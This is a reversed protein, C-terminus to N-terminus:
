VRGGIECITNFYSMSNSKFNEINNQLARWQWNGQPNGPTNMRGEHGLGFLDQLPIIAIKSPSLMAGFIIDWHANEGSTKLYIRFQNKTKEDANQYWSFSTDNDHTGTYCIANQKQNYPLYPNNKNSDFAFQLVNMSAINLSDRLKIAADSLLGLDEAILKINPLARSIDEFIKLDPGKCWTGKKATKSDAPIAWYDAFARFHDIRVSDFFKTANKLRAIWFDKCKSYSNKWDYIPNGWLQGEPSFYDPGVGAVYNLNGNKDCDFIEKNAWLEVSDFSVYIPLDGIISINKENAYSKMQLYQAFFIWQIFKHNEMQACEQESYKQKKAKKHDKFEPTWKDSSAGNFKKKLTMFLSYDDLWFANEKCFNKYSSDLKSECIKQIEEDKFFRRAAIELMAPLTEYLRGYDCFDKPLSKAISIEDDFLLNTEKFFDFDIFYPNGAYVSFSQYPSDGYGTPNIPCIQWYTAKCNALFDIFIQASKGLNGIGYDSPLSSIHALLGFARDKIWSYDKM